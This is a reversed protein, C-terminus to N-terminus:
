ISSYRIQLVQFRDKDNKLILVGRNYDHAVQDTHLKWLIIIIFVNFVNNILVYSTLQNYVGSPMSIIYDICRPNISNIHDM